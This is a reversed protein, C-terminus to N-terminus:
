SWQWNETRQPQLEPPSQSTVVNFEPDGTGVGGGAWRPDAGDCEEVGTLVV